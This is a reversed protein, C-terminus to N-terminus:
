QDFFSPVAPKKPEAPAETKPEAPETPEAATEIPREPQTVPTIGARDLEADTLPQFKQLRQAIDAGSPGASGVVQALAIRLQQDQSRNLLESLQKTTEEKLAPGGRQINRALANSAALRMPVTQSDALVVGALASQVEASPMYGLADAAIPGLEQSGLLALLSDKAPEASLQPFEGRAVRLVWEIAHRQNAAKEASTLPVAMPDDFGTKLSADLLDKSPGEPVVIVNDFRSAVTHLQTEIEPRSMVVVPIGCTRPDARLNILTEDLNWERITPEIFILDIAGSESATTFGAKGTGANVSLYGLQSLVQDLANARATDHDIVLATPRTDRALARVLTQVVRQSQPFPKRPHINLTALAAAMQVRASPYNLARIMVGPNAGGRLLSSNGTQGLSHVAGLVVATRKEAMAKALVESMLESGSAFVLELVGEPTGPLQRDIGMREYARQLALSVLTLRAEKLGPELDLAQRARKIGYFEEADAVTMPLLTLGGNEWQWVEQTGSLRALPSRHQYYDEAIAALTQAASPLNGSPVGLLYALTERAHSRLAKSNKPSAAVHWLCESSERVGLVKLVDIMLGVLKEDEAETAAAVAPWSSKTMAFLGNMVAARNDSGTQLSEIFYPIAHAGSRRLEQLAFEREGATRGLQAIFHRIREPDRSKDRAAENAMQILKASLDRTEPRNQLKLLMASGYKERMQLVNEPNLHEHRLVAELRTRARDWLGFDLDRQLAVWHEEFTQPPALISEIESLGRLNRNADAPIPQAQGPRASLGVLAAMVALLWRSRYRIM